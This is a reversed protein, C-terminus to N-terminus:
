TILFVLALSYQVCKQPFIISLSLNIFFYLDGEMVDVICYLDETSDEDVSIKCDTGPGEDMAYIIADFPDFEKDGYYYGLM